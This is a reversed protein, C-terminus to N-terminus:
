ERELGELYRRAEEPSVERPDSSGRVMDWGNEGGIYAMELRDPGLVRRPVDAALHHERCRADVAEIYRLTPRQDWDPGTALGRHWPGWWSRPFQSIFLLAILLAVALGQRASLRGSPRLRFLRGEGRPLGGCVFLALGLQPFLHYRTWAFGGMNGVYAWEARASYILVYSVLIFALGLVLLGRRPARRWWWVAAVVAVDLVLFVWGLPLEFGGAGFAGAILNDALSRHTNELGIDLHFAQAATKDGYHPLHMIREANLPLTVALFAASGLLPVLAVAGRRLLRRARTAMGPPAPAGEQGPTGTGTGDGWGGVLLYLGCLPGALIGSAFWAPALAACLGCLALHWGRGGQRWRQAALLGLLLTNLGLLTFSAAFWVVAQQYVGTVGFLAMGVLGYFPHGLERRLFVYFLVMGSLLALPGHLTAALPLASPRVLHVLAWVWLRGLPMTHENQPVWLNACTKEWTWSGILVQFDDYVLLAHQLPYAELALAAACALLALAAVPLNWTAPLPLPPSRRWLSTLTAFRGAAKTTM